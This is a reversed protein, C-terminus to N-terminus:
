LNEFANDSLGNVVKHHETHDEFVGLLLDRDLKSAVCFDKLLDIKDNLREKIYNSYKVTSQKKFKDESITDLERSKNSSTM